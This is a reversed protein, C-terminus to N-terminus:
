SPSRRAEARVVALLPAIRREEVGVDLIREGPRVEALKAQAITGARGLAHFEDMGALDDSDLALPSLGAAKLAAMVANGIDPGDYYGSM